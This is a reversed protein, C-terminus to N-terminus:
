IYNLLNTHKSQIVKLLELQRSTSMQGQMFLNQVSQHISDCQKNPFPPSMFDLLNLYSHLLLLLQGMDKPRLCAEARIISTNSMELPTTHKADLEYNSLVLCEEIKKLMDSMDAHVDRPLQFNKMRASSWFLFLGRTGYFLILVAPISAVLQVNLRNADVLNDIQDMAQLLDAKLQQIQILMLQAVRGRLIGRIAGGSVEQEYMRSAAALAAARNQRMGNGVGLDRLMNDLSTQENLLAFPDVMRPRRNLLDLIIDKMPTYFRFEIIGWFATFIGKIFDVIEQKNPAIINNHLSNALALFLITSPLGLFDYSKIQSSLQSLRDYRREGARKRSASYEVLSLIVLWSSANCTEKDYNAWKELFSSEAPFDTTEAQVNEKGNDVFGNSRKHGFSSRIVTRAQQNWEETQKIWMRNQSRLCFAVASTLSKKSSMDHNGGGNDASGKRWSARKQESEGIVSLLEDAELEKPRQLLVSELKGLWELECEWTATALEYERQSRDRYDDGMWPLVTMAQQRLAEIIHGLRGGSLDVHFKWYNRSRKLRAAVVLHRDRLIRLLSDLTRLEILKSSHRLLLKINQEQISPASQAKTTIPAIYKGLISLAEASREVFVGRSGRPPCSLQLAKLSTEIDKSYDEVFHNRLTNGVDGNKIKIGFLSSHKVGNSINSELPSSELESAIAIVSRLGEQFAKVRVTEIGGFSAYSRDGRDLDFSRGRRMKRRRKRRKKNQMNDTYVKSAKGINGINGWPSFKLSSKSPNMPNIAGNLQKEADALAEDVSTPASPIFLGYM